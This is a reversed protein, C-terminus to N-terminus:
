ALLATLLAAALPPPISTPGIPLGYMVQNYLLMALVQVVAPPILAVPSIVPPLKAVPPVTLAVALTVPPLKAVPPVTLAM